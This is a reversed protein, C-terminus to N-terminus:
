VVSKRDKPNPKDPGPGRRTELTGDAAYRIALTKTEDPSRSKSNFQAPRHEASRRAGVAELELEYPYLWGVMGKTRANLTVQYTEAQRVIRSDAELAKLGGLWVEYTLSQSSEAAATAPLLCLGLLAFRSALGSLIRMGAHYARRATTM